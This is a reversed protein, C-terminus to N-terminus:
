LGLYSYLLMVIHREEDYQYEKKYYGEKIYTFYLEYDNGNLPVTYEDVMIPYQRYGMITAYLEEDSVQNVDVLNYQQLVHCNEIAERIIHETLDSLNNDQWALYSLGLGLLMLGILLEVADM